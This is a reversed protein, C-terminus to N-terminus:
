TLATAGSNSVMNKVFAKAGAAAINTAQMTKTPARAMTNTEQGAVQTRQEMMSSLSMTSALDTRMMSRGLAPARATERDTIGVAMTIMFRALSDELRTTSTTVSVASMAEATRGSYIEKVM